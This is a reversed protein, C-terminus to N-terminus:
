QTENCGKYPYYRYVIFEYFREPSQQSQLPRPPRPPARPEAWLLFGTGAGSSPCRSTLPIASNATAIYTPYKPAAAPTMRSTTSLMMTSSDSTLTLATFFATEPTAFAM